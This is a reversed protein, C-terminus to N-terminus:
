IDNLGYEAPSSYDRASRIRSLKYRGMCGEVLSVVERYTDHLNPWIEEEKLTRFFREIHANYEPTAV